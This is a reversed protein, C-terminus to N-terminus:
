IIWVGNKKVIKVKKGISYDNIKIKKNDIEVSSYDEPDLVEIHPKIRSITTKQIELKEYDDDYSINTKHENEIDRLIIKDSLNTVTYVRKKYLLVDHKKLLPLVLLITLRYLNKGTQRNHSFLTENMSLKGGFHKQINQAIVKLYTQDTIFLEIMGDFEKRETIFIGKKKVKKFQSDIYKMVENTPNKLQLIGEFYSSQSISCKNCLTVEVDFPIIQEGIGLLANITIRKKIGPKMLFEQIKNIRFKKENLTNKLLKAFVEEINDYKNWKYRIFASKCEACFKLKPIKKISIDTKPNCYNCFIGERIEIGCKVCKPM